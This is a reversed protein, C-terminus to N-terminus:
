ERWSWVQHAQRVEFIKVKEFKEGFYGGMLIGTKFSFWKTLISAKLYIIQEFYVKKKLNQRRAISYNVEIAVGFKTFLRGLLCACIHYWIVLHFFRETKIDEMHSYIFLLVKRVRININIALTLSPTLFWAHKCLLVHNFSGM